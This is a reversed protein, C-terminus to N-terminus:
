GMRILCWDSGYALSVVGKNSALNRNAARFTKTSPHVIPGIAARWGGEKRSCIWLQWGSSAESFFPATENAWSLVRVNYDLGKQSLKVLRVYGFSGGNCWKAGVNAAKYTVYIRIVKFVIFNTTEKNSKSKVRVGFEDLPIYGQTFCPFIRVFHM